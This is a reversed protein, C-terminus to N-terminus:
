LSWLRGNHSKEFRAFAHIGMDRVLQTKIAGDEVTSKSFLLGDYNPEKYIQHAYVEDRYKAKGKIGIDTVFDYGPDVLDEWDPIFYRMPREYNKARKHDHGQLNSLFRHNHQIARSQATSIREPQRYPSVISLFQQPTPVEVFDILRERAGMEGKFVTSSTQHLPAVIQEAFLKFLHGKLGVLNYSFAISDDQGVRVFYYPIEGQCGKIAPLVQLFYAHFTRSKLSLYVLPCCITIVLYSFLATM